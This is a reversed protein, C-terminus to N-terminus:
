SALSELKKLTALVIEPQVSIYKDWRSGLGHPYGVLHNMAGTIAARVVPQSIDAEPWNERVNSVERRTIGFLTEFEWEPFFDEQEAACLCEYITLKERETLADNINPMIM